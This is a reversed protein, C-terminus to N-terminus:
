KLWLMPLGYPVCVDIFVYMATMKSENMVIKKEEKREDLCKLWIRRLNIGFLYLVM